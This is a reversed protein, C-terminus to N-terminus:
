LKELAFSLWALTLIAHSVQVFLDWFSVKICASFGCCSYCRFTNGCFLAPNVNSPVLLSIPLPNMSCWFLCGCCYHTTLVVKYLLILCCYDSLISGSYYGGKTKRCTHTHTKLPILAYIQRNTQRDTQKHETPSRIQAHGHM